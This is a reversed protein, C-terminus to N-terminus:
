VEQTSGDAVLLEAAFRACAPERPVPKLRHGSIQIKSTVNMNAGSDRECTAVLLSGGLDSVCCDAGDAFEFGTSASFFGACISSRSVFYRKSDFPSERLSTWVRTLILLSSPTRWNARRFKSKLRM